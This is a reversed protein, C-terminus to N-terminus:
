SCLFSCKDAQQSMPINCRVAVCWHRMSLVTHMIYAGLADVAAQNMVSNLSNALNWYTLFSADHLRRKNSPREDWGLGASLAVGQESMLMAWM